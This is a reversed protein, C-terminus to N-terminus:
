YIKFTPLYKLATVDEVKTMYGTRGDIHTSFDKYKVHIGAAKFKGEDLYNKGGIGTVYIDGGFYKCIKILRETSDEAKQKLDSSRVIECTANIRKAIARIVAENMVALRDDNLDIVDQWIHFSNPYAFRLKELVPFINKQPEAIRVANIKQLYHYNVPMTVWEADTQNALVAKSRNIYSGKTFQVDDYLVFVDSLKMKMFFGAWPFFNPQHVAIRKM